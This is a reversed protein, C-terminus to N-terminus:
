NVLGNYVNARELTLNKRREQNSLSVQQPHRNWSLIAEHASEGRIFNEETEKFGIWRMAILEKFGEPVAGVEAPDSVHAGAM